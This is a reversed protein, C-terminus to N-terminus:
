TMWWLCASGGISAWNGHRRGAPLTLPGTRSIGQQRLQRRLLVAMYGARGWVALAGALWCICAWTEWPITHGTDDDTVTAVGEPATEQVQTTERGTEVSASDPGPTEAPVALTPAPTRLYVPGEEIVADEITDIVVAVHTDQPVIVLRRGVNITFPICLRILLVMWILYRAQPSLQKKFIARILLIVGFLVLSSVTVGLANWFLWAM